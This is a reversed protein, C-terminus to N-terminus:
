FYVVNDDFSILQDEFMMQCNVMQGVLADWTIKKLLSATDEWFPFEDADTVASASAGHIGAGLDYGAGGSWAFGSFRLDEAFDNLGGARTDRSIATQDSYMIIAAIPFCGASPAPIDAATLSGKAGLVTGNVVSLTGSSNTQILVYRAGSTPKSSTLDLTQNAVKTWVGSVYMVSGYVMVTLGSYPLVNLPVIQGGQVWVTDKSPFEHSEHHDQINYGTGQEFIEQTGMVQLTDPLLPDIGLWVQLNAITSVRQNLVDMISGDPLSVTVYGKRGSVASVILARMLQPAEKKKLLKVIRRAQQNM